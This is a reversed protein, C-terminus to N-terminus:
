YGTDRKPCQRAPTCAVGRPNLAPSVPLGEKALAVELDTSDWKAVERAISKKNYGCDFFNLYGKLLKTYPPGGEIMIYRNDRCLFLDNVDVFEAGVNM